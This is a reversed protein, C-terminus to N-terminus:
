FLLQNAIAVYAEFGSILANSSFNFNPNHLPSIFGLSENKTGVLFFLGPIQEQYFSFDEATMRAKSDIWKNSPLITKLMNALNSDNLVPPYMPDLDWKISVQSTLEVSKHINSIEKQIQTFVDKSFTRVTGHLEVFDAIANQASGGSITGVHIVAPQLPSLKKSIIEPYSTLLKASALIADNGSHPMAGHGSKGNIYVNFEGCQAMQPGEKIAIIGEEIDPFLHLGFISSVNYKEFLGSEVILKAGGPSEEGPQFIFLINEKLDKSESIYKAFALLTAMHGDHGCAHMCGKNQSIFNADGKEEISLADMDARFAYTKSGISGKKFAVLGSTAVSEPTYGWQVLLKNLYSKTMPLELGLEPIKHLDLRFKNLLNHYNTM